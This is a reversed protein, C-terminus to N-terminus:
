TTVVGEANAGLTRAFTFLSSDAANLAVVGSPKEEVSEDMPPLRKEETERSTSAVTLRRGHRNLHQQPDYRAGWRVLKKPM